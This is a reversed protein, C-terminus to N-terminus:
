CTSEVHVSQVGANEVGHLCPQGRMAQLDQLIQQLTRTTLDYPSFVKSLCFQVSTVHEAIHSVPVGLATAANFIRAGDLHM